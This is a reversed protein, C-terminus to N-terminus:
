FFSFNPQQIMLNQIYDLIRKLEGIFDNSVSNISDHNSTILRSTQEYHITLPECNNTTEGNFTSEEDTAPEVDRTEEGLLTTGLFKKSAAQKQLLFKTRKADAQQRRTGTGSESFEDETIKGPWLM